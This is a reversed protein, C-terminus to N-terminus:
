QYTVDDREHVNDVLVDYGEMERRLEGARESYTKVKLIRKVAGSIAWESPVGTKLDLGVRCWEARTAVEPADAADGAIVLPVGNAVAQQFGAYGGNMIFIDALPLIDEYPIYDTVRANDPVSFSPPLSASVRGLSAVVLIDNRSALGSLTPLILDDYNSPETGQCVFIIYKKGENSLIDGWWEPPSEWRARLSKPLGGAFRITNPADSRPYEVSPACLQIFRDPLMYPADLCFDKPKRAGLSRFTKEFVQQPRSCIKSHIYKNAAINCSQGEPSSDPPLGPGSPATDKSSLLMPATGLAITAHPRIGKAGLFSPLSGMFFAESLVVIKRRPHTATLTKLAVQLAEYQSPISGIFIYELDFNLQDLGPALKKRQPWKADFNANSFDGQGIIPAFEAGTEEVQLRFCSGTIFTVEYGRSVLDACISLVPLFRDIVPIAGMVILPKTADAM